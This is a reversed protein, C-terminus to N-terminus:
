EIVEYVLEPNTKHKLTVEGVENCKFSDKIIEYNKATILIQGRDAKDQLRQAINVENGLARAAKEPNRVWATIEHGDRLLRLILHRGIFGTAGTLLIKM